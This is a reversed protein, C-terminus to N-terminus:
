RWQSLVGPGRHLSHRSGDGQDSTGGARLRRLGHERPRRRKARLHDLHDGEVQDICFVCYCKLLPYKEESEEGTIPDTVTKTIPCYYIIGCGWEGPPVDNPRRM